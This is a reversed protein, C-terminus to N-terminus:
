AGPVNDIPVYTRCPQARLSGCAPRHRPADLGPVVALTLASPYDSSNAILNSQGAADITDFAWRARNGGPTDIYVRIRSGARFVHGFPFVEVSVEVWEDAPVPQATEETHLAVPRLATSAAEDLARHSARLWGSQVYTEDGNPAVETITVELDTDAASSRLWVDARAPGVVVVTDDLPATLWSGAEGQQPSPWDFPPQPGFPDGGDLTRVDGQDPDQAYEIISGNEGDAMTPEATDLGGEPQFYWTTPDAQPPPWATFSAEFTGGPTGPAPTGAGNEFVVRIPDEAEYAALAEDYSDYDAFRDPGFGEGAGFITNLAAPGLARMGVPLEPIRHAVYFDLFESWRQLSSPVLGDAHSGNTITVHLQDTGTFDDLMAPFHGGTEEDQWQGTLFVPVDIQHVLTAPSIPDYRESNYFPEAQGGSVLNLNQSRLAQNAECTEDGADIQEAVYEEPTSSNTYVNESWERAFGSNYIGGPYLIGSYVEDIVSQPAIAALDPPTTSAMFLETIGPYSLGVMGVRHNAVWDQGAVIEVADYGDAVQDGEFFSLSGGSCGTGRLNIGVTAYGLADALQSAPEPSDPNAPDYGSMEIVTPYPGDDPVDDRAVSPFRVMAALSTGDRMELYNIGEELHQGEYLGADPPDGVALVDLPDSVEASDGEGAVVRYGTAAPVRGFLLNGQDDVTGSAARAGTPVFFADVARDDADVLHLETGPEAGTVVVHGVGASVEADLPAAASLDEGGGGGGDDASCATVLLAVVAALALLRHRLM